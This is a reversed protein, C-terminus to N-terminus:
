SQSDIDDVASEKGPSFIAEAVAAVDHVMIQKAMHTAPLTFPDPYNGSILAGLHWDCQPPQDVLPPYEEELMEQLQAEADDEENGNSLAKEPQEQELNSDTKDSGDSSTRVTKVPPLMPQPTPDFNDM